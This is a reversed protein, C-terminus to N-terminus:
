KIGKIYEEVDEASNFIEGNNFPMRESTQPSLFEGQEIDDAYEPTFRFEGNGRFNLIIAQVGKLVAVQLGTEEREFFDWDNLKMRVRKGKLLSEPCYGNWTQAM